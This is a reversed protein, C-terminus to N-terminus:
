GNEGRRGEEAHRKRDTQGVEGKGKKERRNKRAKWRDRISLSFYAVVVDDGILFLSVRSTRSFPFLTLCPPSPFFFSFIDATLQAGRKREGEGKAGLRVSLSPSLRSASVDTTINNTPPSHTSDEKRFM